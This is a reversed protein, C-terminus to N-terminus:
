QKSNRMIPHPEVVQWETRYVTKSFETEKDVYEVALHSASFYGFAEAAHIAQDLDDYFHGKNEDKSWEGVGVLYEGSRWSVVYYGRSRSM